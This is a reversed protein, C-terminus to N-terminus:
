KGESIGSASCGETRPSTLASPTRSIKTASPRGTKLERDPFISGKLARVPIPVMGLSWLLRTIASPREEVTEWVKNIEHPFAPHAISVGLVSAPFGSTVSRIEIEPFTRRFVEYHAKKVSLIEPIAELLFKPRLGGLKSPLSHGDYNFRIIDAMVTDAKAQGFAAMLSQYKKGIGDPTGAFDLGVMTVGYPVLRSGLQMMKGAGVIGNAGSIVLSGRAEGHGFVEDILAESTAPLSARQFIGLVSGLGLTELTSQRMAKM